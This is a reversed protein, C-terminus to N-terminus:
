EAIPTGTVKMGVCALAHCGARSENTHAKMRELIENVDEVTDPEWSPKPVNM